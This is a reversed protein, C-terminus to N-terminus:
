CLLGILQFVFGHRLKLCNGIAQSRKMRMAAPESADSAKIEGRGAALRPMDGAYTNSMGALSAWVRGATSGQGDMGM